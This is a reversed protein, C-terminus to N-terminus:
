RFLKYKGLVTLSLFLYIIFSVSIPIDTVTIFLNNFKHLVPFPIQIYYSPLKTFLFSSVNNNRSSYIPTPDPILHVTRLTNILVLYNSWERM